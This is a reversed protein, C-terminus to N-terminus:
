MFFRLEIVYTWRVRLACATEMERKRKESRNERERKRERVLEGVRYMIPEEIDGRSVSLMKKQM